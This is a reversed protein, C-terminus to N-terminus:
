GTGSFKPQLRYPFCVHLPTWGWPDTDWISAQGSGLMAQVAEINGNASFM